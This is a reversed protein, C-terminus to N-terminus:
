SDEQPERRLNVSDAKIGGFRRQRRNYEVIAEILHERSFDPWLVPMIIIESYAVEWLLFNSIRSEGGPRLLLDPEPLQPAYLNASISKEDIDEFGIEGARVRAALARAADVIEARGGYNVLLNLVLGGNGATRQKGETIADQLGQPLQHLRGSATFIIGMRDMDDIEERLATEILMMLGSVEDAPRRWNESSFAYVSLVGVGFETAAEIVRRTAERGEIHGQIRKMGRQEAWRGNGDMIIALHSPIDLGALEPPLSTIEDTM